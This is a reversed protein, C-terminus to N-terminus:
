GCSAGHKLLADRSTRRRTSRAGCHPISRLRRAHSCEPRSPLASPGSPACMALSFASLLLRPQNARQRSRRACLL